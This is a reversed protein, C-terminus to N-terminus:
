DADSGSPAPEALTRVIAPVADAHAPGIRGLAELASLRAVHPQTGDAVVDILTPTTEAALPGFLALAKIAWLQASQEPDGTREGTLRVLAPVARTARAGIRALTLAAQRRSFWPAGVDEVIELLGPVAQGAAPDRPDLDKIRERWEDLTLGGYRRALPGSALSSPPSKLVCIASDLNWIPTIGRCQQQLRCNAIQLKCDATLAMVILSSVVEM